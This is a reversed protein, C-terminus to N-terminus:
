SLLKWAKLEDICSDHNAKIQEAASKGARSIMSSVLRWRPTGRWDILKARTEETTLSSRSLAELFSVLHAAELGSKFVVQPSISLIFRDRPEGSLSRYNQEFAPLSTASPIASEKEINVWLSADDAGKSTTVTGTELVSEKSDLEAMRVSGPAVALETGTAKNKDPIIPPELRSIAVIQAPQQSRNEVQSFDTAGVANTVSNAQVTVAATEEIIASTPTDLQVAPPLTQESSIPLVNDVAVEKKKREAKYWDDESGVEQIQIIKRSPPPPDRKVAMSQPKPAQHVKM